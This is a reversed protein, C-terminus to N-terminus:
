TFTVGHRKFPLVHVEAGVLLTRRAQESAQLNLPPARLGRSGTAPLVAKLPTMSLVTSM